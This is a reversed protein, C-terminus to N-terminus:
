VSLEVCFRVVEAVQAEDDPKTAEILLAEPDFPKAVDRLVPLVIIEAAAPGTMDFATVSVTVAALRTEIAIVGAAGLM